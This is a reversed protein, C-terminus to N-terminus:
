LDHPFIISHSPSPLTLDALHGRILFTVDQLLISVWQCMGQDNETKLPHKLFVNTLNSLSLLSFFHTVEELPWCQANQSTFHTDEDSGTIDEPRCCYTDGLLTGQAGKTYASTRVIRVGRQTDSALSEGRACGLLPLAGTLFGRSFLALQQGPCGSCVTQKFSPYDHWGKSRTM